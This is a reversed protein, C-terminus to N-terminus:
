KEFACDRPKDYYNEWHRDFELSRLLTVKLDNRARTKSIVYENIENRVDGPTFDFYKNEFNHKMLLQKLPEIYVNPAVTEINQPIDKCTIKKMQVADADGEEFRGSYHNIRFENTSVLDMKRAKDRNM